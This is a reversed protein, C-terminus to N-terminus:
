YRQLDDYLCSIFISTYYNLTFYVLNTFYIFQTNGRVQILNSQVETVVGM